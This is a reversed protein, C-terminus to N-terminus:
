MDGWIFYGLTQGCGSGMTHCILCLDLKRQATQHTNGFERFSKFTFSVEGFEETETWPSYISQIPTYDLYLWEACQSIGGRTFLFCFKELRFIWIYNRCDWDGKKPQFYWYSMCSWIGRVICNWKYAWRLNRHKHAVRNETPRFLKM